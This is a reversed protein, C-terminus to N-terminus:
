LKYLEGFKTELYKMYPEITLDRGSVRKLLEPATFKRGVQHINERLWGRVPALDGAEVGAWLDPLDTEMKEFFQAAYINGLTYTPFYGIGGQSWHIDQLCGVSDDPPTVGLYEKYKENWVGPIDAPKLDGELVAVEIEFRIIIHLNYTCEDAEVRILSPRVANSAAYAKEADVGDLMGAFADRFMGISAHWFPRSRGIMNEWLRSQSEHVGLSISHALPTGEWESPLGREYLGHGGEHMASYLSSFLLGTDYRSTLRVDNATFSTCFPHAAVDLRGHDFDFGMMELVSRSFREQMDVPWERNLWSEDPQSPSAVIRAVLDKQRTALEAFLPKLMEATMGREYNELLGNYVSGEYGYYDAARRALEYNKALADAFLSFDKAKRAKKWAIIGRSDAEAIEKVFSEPLKNSREYDYLAEDVLKRQDSDLDVGDNALRRLDDGLEQDTAMRHLIGSTAALQRGRVDAAGEPMYTEQDWHLVSIANGLYSVEQLREVVSEFLEKNSM